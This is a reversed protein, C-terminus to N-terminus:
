LSLFLLIYLVFPRVVELALANAKSCFKLNQKNHNQGFNNGAHLAGFPKGTLERHHARTGGDQSGEAKEM